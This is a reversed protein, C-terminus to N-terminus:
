DAAGKRWILCRNNAPMEIDGQLMLGAAAAQEDVWAIDRIGREPDTSKLWADFRENSPSTFQNKYNFPGYVIFLGNESLAQGAVRFLAAGAEISMFHVTNATFVTDFCAAWEVPRCVDLEAVPAINKGGETTVRARLVPLYDGTDTPQWRTDPFTQAFYVVHQGTGSGIELVQAGAPLWERLVQAIPGKNRECAESSPLSHGADPKDMM